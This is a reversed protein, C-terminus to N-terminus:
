TPHDELYCGFSRLLAPSGSLVAPAGNPPNWATISKTWGGPEGDCIFSPPPLELIKPNGGMDKPFIVGMKVRSMNKLPTSGGVLFTQNLIESGLFQKM